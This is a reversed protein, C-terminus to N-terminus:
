LRGADRLNEDWAQPLARYRMELKRFSGDVDPWAEPVEVVVVRRHDWLIKNRLQLHKRRRQRSDDAQEYELLGKM